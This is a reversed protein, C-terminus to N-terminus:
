SEQVGQGKFLPGTTQGWVDTVVLRRQTVNWFLAFMEAWGIM